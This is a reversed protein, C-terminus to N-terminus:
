RLRVKKSNSLKILRSSNNERLGSRDQIIIDSKDECFSFMFSKSKENASSSYAWPLNRLLQSQLPYTAVRFAEGKVIFSTTKSRRIFNKYKKPIRKPSKLLAKYSTYVKLFPKNSERSKIQLLKAENQSVFGVTTDTQTLIVAKSISSLRSPSKSQVM